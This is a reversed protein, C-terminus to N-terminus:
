RDADRPGLAGDRGKRAAGPEQRPARGRRIRGAAQRRGHDRCRARERGRGANFHPSDEMVVVAASVADIASGGDRLVAHGAELARELDRRIEAEREASLTERSITGAGGHIVLATPQAEALAATGALAAIAILARRLMPPRWTFTRLM